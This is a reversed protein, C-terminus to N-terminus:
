SSFRKARRLGGKPQPRPPARGKPPAPVEGVIEIEDDEDEDVNIMPAESQRPSNTPKSATPEAVNEPGASGKFKKWEGSLQSIQQFMEERKTSFAQVNWIPHSETLKDNKDMIRQFFKDPQSLFTEAAKILYVGCDCFNPQAPSPAKAQKIPIPEEAILGKKHELEQLLYQRLTKLASPHRGGLSDFSLLWTASADTKWIEDSPEDDDGVDLLEEVATPGPSSVRSRVEHDSEGALEEPAKNDTLEYMKTDQPSGRRSTPLSSPNPTDAEIEDVEEQDVNHRVIQNEPVITGQQELTNTNLIQHKSQVDRLLNDPFLIVALYWHVKENIPVVLYRKQFIDVKSTWKKVANYGAQTDKNKLKKYFFPSFVHIQEALTPNSEKLSEMWYRLGFEILTDNLFEGPQLRQQEGQTIQTSGTGTFPYVLIVEDNELDFKAAAGSQRKPRTRTNGTSTSTSPKTSPPADGPVPTLDSSPIEERPPELPPEMRAQKKVAYSELLDWAASCNLNSINAPPSKLPRMYHLIDYLHRKALKKEEFRLSITHSPFDPDLTKSVSEWLSQAKLIKEVKGGKIPCIFIFTSSDTKKWDIDRSSFRVEEEEKPLHLTFCGPPDFVVYTSKVDDYSKTGIFLRTLSLRFSSQPSDLDISDEPKYQAKKHFSSQSLIDNSGTFSPPPVAKKPGTLKSAPRKGDRDLMTAIRKPKFSQATPTSNSGHLGGEFIRKRQDISQFQTSGSPTGQRRKNAKNEDAFSDIPDDSLEGSASSSSRKPQRNSYHPIDADGHHRLLGAKSYEGLGTQLQPGSTKYHSHTDETSDNHRARKPPPGNPERQRSLMPAVTGVLPLFNTPNFKATQSVRKAGPMLDDKEKRSVGPVISTPSNKWPGDNKM